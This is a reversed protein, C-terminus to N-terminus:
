PKSEQRRQRYLVGDVVGAMRKVDLRGGLFRNVEEAWRAPAQLIENYDAYFVAVNPQGELWAEVERLHKCFVEAMRDDSVGGPSAVGRRVLMQGQSALVERLDRRMFIVRYAHDAPLRRLLESVIKVAKGGAEELWARDQPLAKVREFEHYGKLNDEDAARVRDTLVAVGGAELMQMMMSTGSRPLGSVVIVEEHQSM